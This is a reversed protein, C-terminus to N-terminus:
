ECVDLTVRRLPLIERGENYSLVWVAWTRNKRPIYWEDGRRFSTDELWDFEIDSRTSRECFISGSPARVLSHFVNVVKGIYWHRSGAAKCYKLHFCGALVWLLAWQNTKTFVLLCFSFHQTSCKSMVGSNVRPDLLNRLYARYQINKMGVCERM